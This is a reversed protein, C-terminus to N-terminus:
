RILLIKSTQISSESQIRAIYVGSPFMSADWPVSSKDPTKIGDMLVSIEKGLLDYLSIRVHQYDPAVFRIMTSSNFPNPYNQLIVVHSPSYIVGNEPVSVLPLGGTTTYLVTSRGVIAGISDNLFFADYFYTGVPMNSPAIQQTWTEGKDTSRYVFDGGGAWLIKKTPSWRVFEFGKPSLSIKQNWTMGGDTSKALVRGGNLTYFGVSDDMFFLRDVAIQDVIKVWTSGGDNTKYV